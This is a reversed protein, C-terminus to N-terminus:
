FFPNKRIYLLAYTVLAFLIWELQREPNVVQPLAAVIGVIIGVLLCDVLLGLADLFKLHKQVFDFIINSYNLKIYQYKEKIKNLINGM